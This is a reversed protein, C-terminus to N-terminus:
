ALDKEVIQINIFFTKDKYNVFQLYFRFLLFCLPILGCFITM